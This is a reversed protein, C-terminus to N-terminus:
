ASRSRSRMSPEVPIHGGLDAPLREPRWPYSAMSARHSYLVLALTGPVAAVGMVSEPVPWLSSTESGMALIVFVTAVSVVALWVGQEGLADWDADRM